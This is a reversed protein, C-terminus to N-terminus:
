DMEVTLTPYLLKLSAVTKKQWPVSARGRILLPLSRDKALLVLGGLARIGSSNMLLVKRLDLTYSSTARQMKERLERFLRDYAETSQLRMVGSLVAILSENECDLSYEDTHIM